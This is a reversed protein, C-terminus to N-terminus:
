LIQRLSQQLSQTTAHLRKASAVARSLATILQDDTHAIPVDAAEEVSALVTQAMKCITKLTDTDQGHSSVQSGQPSLQSQSLRYPSPKPSVQTKIPSAFPTLSDDGTQSAANNQSEFLLSSLSTISCQSDLLSSQSSSFSTISCQRDLLSSQSIHQEDKKVNQKARKTSKESPKNVLVRKKPGRKNLVRPKPLFTRDLKVGKAGKELAKKM